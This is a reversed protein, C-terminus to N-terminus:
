IIELAALHGRLLVLKNLEQNLSNQDVLKLINHLSSFLVLLVKTAEVLKCDDDHAINIQDNGVM